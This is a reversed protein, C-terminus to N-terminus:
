GARADGRVEAGGKGTEPANERGVVPAGGGGGEWWPVRGLWVGTEGGMAVGSIETAPGVKTRM